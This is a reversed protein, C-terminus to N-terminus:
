KRDEQDPMTFGMPARQDSQETNAYLATEHHNDQEPEDRDRFAEFSLSIRVRM